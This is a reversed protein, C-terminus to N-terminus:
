NDFDFNSIEFEMAKIHDEISKILSVNLKELATLPTPRSSAKYWPQRDFYDQIAQDSTFREGHRAFIENRMLRLIEKPFHTLMQRNLPRVSAFAWIGDVGKYPSQIKKLTFEKTISPMHDVTPEDHIVKGELGEDTLNFGWEMPGMLAGAGGAGPREIEETTAFAGGRSMRGMGYQILFSYDAVEDRQEQITDFLGPDRTEEDVGEFMEPMGFLYQKGDSSTYIGDLMDHLDIFNWVPQEVTVQTLINYVKGDEREVMLYNDGMKYLSITLGRSEDTGTAGTAKITYCITNAAVNYMLLENDDEGSGMMQLVVEGDWWYLTADKLVSLDMTTMAKDKQQLISSRWQLLEETPTQQSFAAVTTIVLWLLLALRKM